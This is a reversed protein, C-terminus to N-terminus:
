YTVILWELILPKNKHRFSQGWLMGLFPEARGQQLDAPFGLGFYGREKRINLLVSLGEGYAPVPLRDGLKNGVPLWAPQDVARNERSYLDVIVRGFIM